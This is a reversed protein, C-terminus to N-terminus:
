NGGGSAPRIGPDITNSNNDGGLIMRVPVADIRENKRIDAAMAVASARQPFRGVRVTFWASEQSGNTKYLYAPLGKQQLAAAVQAAKAPTSFTGLQVAYGHSITGEAAVPSAPPIEVVPKPEPSSPKTAAIEPAPVPVPSVAVTSVVSVSPTVTDAQVPVPVPQAASQSQPASTLEAQQLEAKPTVVTAAQAPAIVSLAAPAPTVVSPAKVSATNEELFGKSRSSVARCRMQRSRLEACFAEAAESATFKAVFLRYWAAREKGADAVRGLQRPLLARDTMLKPFRERLDRLTAGISDSDYVAPLEALWAEDNGELRSNSFDVGDLPLAQPVSALAKGSELPLEPRLGKGPLAEGQRVGGGLATFLQVLGQYRNMAVQHLEDLKSHYTRETDLLVLHDIAGASYSETSFNWARRAANVSEQQANLRKGMMQVNMLADEVERVAGYIIRVYSEVLEEHVARAYDVEKALKGSDFITASLNAFANWFLSQPQFWQSFHLSGYGVQTSLDLTPLVRARAVDVNADNALLQAEIARVDPRRLLLASPMGPLVAPYSLSDLGRDSLTLTGPVTGMLWAMYHLAQERQLEMVPITARVAYVATRMQELDIITADGVQMRQDSSEVMGSLVVETEHAVRLRDNLSLYEVYASAVNAVLTRQVDDRQFTAKWLQFDVSEYLSQREGWIDARWDGRVSAKYTRKSSANSGPPVTGVGYYPAQNSVEVPVTIVPVKDANAQGARAEAQAVRYTAIRLDQSNALARDMLADLETSGLLRWWEPLANGLPTAPADASNPQMNAPATARDDGAVSQKHQMTSNQSHTLWAPETGIYERGWEIKAAKTPRASEAQAPEPPLAVDDLKGTFTVFELDVRRNKHRSERTNPYRPNNEGQGEAVITDPPLMGTEVLYKKISLARRESLNQNYEATGIDCTHGTLRINGSYWAQRLTEAVADLATIAEPTLQDSDFKFFADSLMSATTKVMRNEIKPASVVPTEAVKSDPAAPAAVPSRTDVAVAAIPIKSYKDPLPVIPVDYHARKAACGSLVFVAFAVGLCRLRLLNTLQEVSAM